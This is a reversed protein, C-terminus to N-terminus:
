EINLISDFGTMSLIDMVMGSVRILVMSGNKALATKHGILLVRLGASSIYDIKEFDLVVKTVKQFSNLIETQLIPSTNTDVRGEIEITIVDEVRSTKLNMNPEKRDAHQLVCVILPTHFHNEKLGLIM